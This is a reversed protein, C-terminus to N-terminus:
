AAQRQKWESRTITLDPYRRRRRVLARPEPPRTQKNQKLRQLRKLLDKFNGPLAVAIAGRMVSATEAILACSRKHSTRRVDAQSGDARCAQAALARVLSFALIGSALERLAASPTRGGLVAPLHNRKLDRIDLEIDWRRGYLEILDRRPCARPDILTTVLRLRIDRYGRRRLVCTVVRVWLFQPERRLLRPFHTHASRPRRWLELRDDRALRVRRVAETKWAPLRLLGASRYRRLRSLLLYSFLGADGILLCGSGISRLLRNLMLRESWAFPAALWSLVAGTGACCILLLRAVPRRSLGRHNAARGFGDVNAATRGLRMTTGDVVLVRLGFACLGAAHSAADAVERCCRQFVGLSLRKRADCFSSGSASRYAAPDYSNFWDEVERVSRVGHIHAYICSLLTVVPDFLRRRWKMHCARAAALIFTDTLLARVPHMAHNTFNSQLKSRVSGILSM